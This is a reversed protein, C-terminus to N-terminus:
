LRRYKATNADETQPALPGPNLDRRGSWIGKGLLTSDSFSKANVNTTRGAFRNHGTTGQSARRARHRCDHILASKTRCPDGLATQAGAFTAKMHKEAEKMKREDVKGLNRRGGM